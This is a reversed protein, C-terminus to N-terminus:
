YEYRPLRAHPRESDNLQQALVFVIISAFTSSSFSLTFVGADVAIMIAPWHVTIIEVIVHLSHSFVVTGNDIIEERPHMTDKIDKSLRNELIRARVM